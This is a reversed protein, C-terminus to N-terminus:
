KKTGRFFSLNKKVEGIITTSKYVGIELNSLQLHDYCIKDILQEIEVTKGDVIVTTQGKDELSELEEIIEIMAFTINM